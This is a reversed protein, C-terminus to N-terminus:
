AYRPSLQNDFLIPTPTPVPPIEFTPTEMAITSTRFSSEGGVTGISSGRKARARVRPQMFCAFCVAPSVITQLNCPQKMVALHLFGEYGGGCVKGLVLMLM